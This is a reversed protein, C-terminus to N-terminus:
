EDLVPNIETITKNEKIPVGTEVMYGVRGCFKQNHRIIADAGLEFAKMVLESYEINDDSRESRNISVFETELYQKNTNPINIIEYRKNKKREFESLNLKSIEINKMDSEKIKNNSTTKM